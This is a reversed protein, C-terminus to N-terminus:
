GIIYRLKPAATGIRDADSSSYGVKNLSGLLKVFTSGNDNDM